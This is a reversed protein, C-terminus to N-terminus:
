GVFVLPRSNGLSLKLFGTMGSLGLSLSLSLLRTHHRAQHGDGGWGERRGLKVGGETAEARRGM